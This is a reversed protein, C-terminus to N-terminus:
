KILLLKNLGDKNIQKFTNRLALKKTNIILKPTDENIIQIKWKCIFM